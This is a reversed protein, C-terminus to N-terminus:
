QQDTLFNITECIDNIDEDTEVTIYRDFALKGNLAKYLKPSIKDKIKKVEKMQDVTLNLAIHKISDAKPYANLIISGKKMFSVEWTPSDYDRVHLEFINSKSTTHCRNNLANVIKIWLERYEGVTKLIRYDLPNLDEKKTSAGLTAIRFDATYFLTNTTAYDQRIDTDPISNAFYNLSLMLDNSNVSHVEFNKCSAMTQTEREDNYFKFDFGYKTM